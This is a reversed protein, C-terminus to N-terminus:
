QVCVHSAIMLKDHAVLRVFTIYWVKEHNEKRDNKPMACIPFFLDFLQNTWLNEEWTNSFFVPAVNNERFTMEDFRRKASIDHRRIDIPRIMM